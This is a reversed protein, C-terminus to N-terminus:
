HQQQTPMPKREGRGELGGGEEEKNKGRRAGGRRVNCGFSGLDDPITQFLGGKWFLECAECITVDEQTTNQHLKQHWQELFPEDIGQRRIAFRRPTHARTATNQHRANEANNKPAQQAAAVGSRSWCVSCVVCLVCVVCGLWVRVVVCAKWGWVARVPRHGERIGHDRMVHLIGMRIDDGNGGGRPLGALALRAYLRCWPDAATRAQTQPLLPPPPPASTSPGIQTARFADAAISHQTKLGGAM